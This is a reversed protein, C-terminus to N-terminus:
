WTPIGWAKCMFRGYWARAGCEGGASVLDKYNSFEHDPHRYGVDTRVAKVYRWHDDSMSIEDPRYAKLYERGWRLDDDTADSDVVLRLEWVSLTEFDSDLDGDIYANAYHWFREVPDVVDTKTKKFIIIPTAHQLAVALALRQVLSSSSKDLLLSRGNDKVKCNLIEDQLRSYMTLAPGYHGNVPGGAKLFEKMLEVSNLFDDLLLKNETSNKGACWEALRKPTSQVLVTCELLNHEIEELKQILRNSKLISCGSNTCAKNRLCGVTDQIKQVAQKAQDILEPEMCNPNTKQKQELAYLLNTADKLSGKAAELSQITSEFVHGTDITSDKTPISSVISSRLTDIRHKFYEETYNEGSSSLCNSLSLAM